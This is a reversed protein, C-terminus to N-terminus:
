VMDSTVLIMVTNHTQAHKECCIWFKYILVKDNESHSCNLLHSHVKNLEVYKKADRAPTLTASKNLMTGKPGRIRLRQHQPVLSGTQTLKCQFMQHVLVNESAARPSLFLFYVCM